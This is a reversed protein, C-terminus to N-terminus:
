KHANLVAQVQLEHDLISSSTGSDYAGDGTLCSFERAIQRIHGLSSCDFGLVSNIHFAGVEELAPFSIKEFGGDYGDGADLVIRNVRRLNPFDLTRLRRNRLIYLDGDIDTLSPAHIETVGRADTISLDGFVHSLVPLDIEGTQSPPATKEDYVAVSGASELAPLSILMNKADRKGRQRRTNFNNGIVLPGSVTKLAPFIVENMRHNNLVRVTDATKLQELGNYYFSSGDYTPYDRLFGSLYTDEVNLSSVAVLKPAAWEFYEFDYEWTINRWELNGIETVESLSISTTITPSAFSFGGLKRVDPLSFAKLIRNEHAIITGTIEQPGNLILYVYAPDILIDGSITSCAELEDMIKYNPNAVVTTGGEVGCDAATVRLLSFAYIPTALKM